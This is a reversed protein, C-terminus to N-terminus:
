GVANHKVLDRVLNKLPGPEEKNAAKSEAVRYISKPQM